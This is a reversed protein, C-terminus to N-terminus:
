ECIPRESPSACQQGSFRRSSLTMDDLRFPSFFGLIIFLFFFIRLVCAVVLSFFVASSVVSTPQRKYEHLISIIDRRSFVHHLFRVCVRRPHLRARPRRSTPLQRAKAKARTNVDVSSCAVRSSCVYLSARRWRTCAGIARASPQWGAGAAPVGGGAPPHRPHAQKARTGIIIYIHIYIKGKRAVHVCQLNQM